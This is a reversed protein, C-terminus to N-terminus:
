YISQKRNGSPIHKKVEQGKWATINYDFFLGLIALIEDKINVPQDLLLASWQTAIFSLCM